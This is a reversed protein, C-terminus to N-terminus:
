LLQNTLEWPRLKQTARFVGPRHQFRGARGPKACKLEGVKVLDHIAALAHVRNLAHISVLDDVTFESHRAAFSRVARFVVGRVRGTKSPRPTM